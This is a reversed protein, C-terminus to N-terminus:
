VLSTLAAASRKLISKQYMGGYVGSNFLISLRQDTIL